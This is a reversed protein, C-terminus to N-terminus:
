ISARGIHKIHENIYSQFYTPRSNSERWRWWLCEPMCHINLALNYQVSRTSKIPTYQNRCHALLVRRLIPLTFATLIPSVRDFFCVLTIAFSSEKIGTARAAYSLILNETGGRIVLHPAKQIRPFHFTVVM